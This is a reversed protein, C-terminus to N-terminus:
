GGRRIRQDYCLGCSDHSDQGDVLARTEGREDVLVWRGGLDRLPGTDLRRPDNVTFEWPGSDFAVIEIAPEADGPSGYGRLTIDNCQHEWRALLEVTAWEVPVDDNEASDLM